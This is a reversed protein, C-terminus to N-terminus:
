RGKTNNHVPTFRNVEAEPLVPASPRANEQVKELIEKLKLDHNTRKKIKVSNDMYRTVDVTLYGGDRQQDYVVTQTGNQYTSEKMLRNKDYERVALLTGDMYESERKAFGQNDYEVQLGHRKGNKFTGTEAPGTHEPSYKVYEGTQVKNKDLFYYGAVAGKEDFEVCRLNGDTERRKHSRLVANKDYSKEEIIQGKQYVSYLANMNKLQTNPTTQKFVDYGDCRGYIGRDGHSIYDWNSEDMLHNFDIMM